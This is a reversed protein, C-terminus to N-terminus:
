LRVLPAPAGFRFGTYAKRECKGERFIAVLGIVAICETLTSGKESLYQRILSRLLRWKIARASLVVEATYQQAKAIQLASYAMYLFCYICLYMERLM